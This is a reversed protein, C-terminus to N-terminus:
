IFFLLPETPSQIFRKDIVNLASLHSQKSGTSDPLLLEPSGIPVLLLMLHMALQSTSHQKILSRTLALRFYVTFCRTLAM